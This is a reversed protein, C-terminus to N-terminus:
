TNKLGSFNPPLKNRLMLYHSYKMDVEDTFEILEVKM